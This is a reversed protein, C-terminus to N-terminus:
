LGECYWLSGPGERWEIGEAFLAERVGVMDRDHGCLLRKAKRRWARLDAVVAEFTHEGDIFVMDLTGDDFQEAARVSDMALVRLNEFRGVNKRFEAQIDVTKAERHNTELESPSGRFHDVAYVLGQCGTLLAYTSRGLWCGIEAVSDSMMAQAHLAVLEERSMWGPIREDICAM